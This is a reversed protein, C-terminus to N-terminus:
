SNSPQHIDTRQRLQIKGIRTSTVCGGGGNGRTVRTPGTVCNTCLIFPVLLWGVAFVVAFVVLGVVLGHM